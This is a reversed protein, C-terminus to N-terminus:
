VLFWATGNTSAASSAAVSSALPTFTFREVAVTNDLAYEARSWAGGLNGGLYCGTWWSYVAPPPAADYTPAMVPWDAAM